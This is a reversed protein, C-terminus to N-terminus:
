HVPTAGNEMTSMVQDISFSAPHQRSPFERFTALFRGVIAQAPVFVFARDVMWSFYGVSDESRELPDARLDFILPVRRAASLWFPLPMAHPPRPQIDNGRRVPTRM